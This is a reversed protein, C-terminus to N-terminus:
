PSRRRMQEAMWETREEEAWEDYSYECCIVDCDAGADPSGCKRVVMTSEKVVINGSSDKSQSLLRYTAEGHDFPVCWPQGEVNAEVDDVAEHTNDRREEYEVIMRDKLDLM